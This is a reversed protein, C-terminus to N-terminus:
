DDWITEGCQCQFLRVTKGKRSDLMTQALRPLAACVPCRRQADQKRPPPSQEKNDTVQKELVFVRRPPWSTLIAWKRFKSVRSGNLCEQDM